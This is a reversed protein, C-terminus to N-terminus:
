ATSSEATRSTITGGAATGTGPAPGSTTPTILRRPLTTVTIFLRAISPSPPVGCPGCARTSTSSSPPSHIPASTSATSSMMRTSGDVSSSGPGDFGGPAARSLSRPVNVPPACIANRTAGSARMPAAGSHARHSADAVLRRPQRSRPIRADPMSGGRGVLRAATRRRRPRPAARGPLRRSMGPVAAAHVLVRSATFRFDHLVDLQDGEDGAGRDGHGEREHQRQLAAQAGVEFGCGSLEVRATGLEVRHAPLSSLRPGVRVVDPPALELQGLLDRQERPLLLLHQQAVRLAAGVHLGYAGRAAARRDIRQHAGEAQAAAFG